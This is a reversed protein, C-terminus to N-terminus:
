ASEEIESGQRATPNTLADGQLVARVRRHIARAFMFEDWEEGPEIGLAECTVFLYALAAFDRTQRDDPEEESEGSAGVTSDRSGDTLAIPLWEGIVADALAEADRDSFETRDVIVRALDERASTTADIM